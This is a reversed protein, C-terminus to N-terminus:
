SNPQAHRSEVIRWCLHTDHTARDIGCSPLFVDSSCDFLLMGFPFSVEARLHPKSLSKDFGIRNYGEVLGIGLTSPVLYDRGGQKQRMAYERDIIKSIHEAITADTGIGNKDMLSVLDAETLLSPATTHGEKMECVTPIFRENVQFAPIHMGEWKDYPFVELYNRQHVILGANSVHAM